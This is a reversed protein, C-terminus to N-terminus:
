GVARAGAPTARRMMGMVDLKFPKGKMAKWKSQQAPTLVKVADADVKAKAAQQKKAFEEMQKMAQERSPREGPKRQRGAFVNRFSQQMLDSIRKTQSDSLGLEKKIEPNYMAQAGMQQITIQRLRAKQPATLLALCEAQSKQIAEFRKKFEAMERERQEPTLKGSMASGSPRLLGTMKDSIKKSVAASLGLEKQVAPMMLFGTGSNVIPAQPVSFSSRVQGFAACVLILSALVIFARKM